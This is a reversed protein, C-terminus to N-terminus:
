WHLVKLREGDYKAMRSVFGNTNYEIKKQEFLASYFKDGRPMGLFVEERHFGREKAWQTRQAEALDNARTFNQSIEQSLWSAHLLLSQYSLTRRHIGENNAGIASQEFSLLGKGWQFAGGFNTRHIGKEKQWQQRDAESLDKFRTFTEDIKRHSYFLRTHENRIELSQREIGSAGEEITQYEYLTHFGFGTDGELKASVREIGKEAQLQKTTNADIGSSSPMGFGAFRPGVLQYYGSFALGASLQAQLGQRVLFDRSPNFTRPASRDPSAGDPSVMVPAVDSVLFLGQLSANNLAFANSFGFHNSFALTGKDRQVASLGTLLQLTGVNQFSLTMLPLGAGPPSANPPAPDYRYAVRVSEFPKAPRLLYLVGSAYDLTYDEGEKLAQAGLLVHVTGPVINGYRLPLGLLRSQAPMIDVAPKGRLQKAFEHNSQELAGVLGQAPLHTMLGISLALLAVGSGKRMVFPGDNKRQARLLNQHVFLM